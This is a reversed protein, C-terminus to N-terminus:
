CGLFFRANWIWGSNDHNSSQLLGTDQEAQGNGDQSSYSNQAYSSVTPYISVLGVSLTLLIYFLTLSFREPNLM